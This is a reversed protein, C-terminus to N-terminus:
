KKAKVRCLWNLDVGTKKKVDARHLWTFGIAGLLLIATTGGVIIAAHAAFWGLLFSIGLITLCGIAVKGVGLKDPLFIAAVGCALLGIGSAWAAWVALSAVAGAPGGHVGQSGAGPQNPVAIRQGCGSLLIALLIMIGLLLAWETKTFRISKM